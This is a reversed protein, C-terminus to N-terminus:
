DAFSASAFDVHADTARGRNRRAIVADIRRRAFLEDSGRIGGLFNALKEARIRQPVDRKRRKALGHIVGFALETRGTIRADIRGIKHLEFDTLAVAVSWVVCRDFLWHRHFTFASRFCFGLPPSAPSSVTLVGDLFASSGLSGMPFRTCRSIRAHNQTPSANRRILPVM